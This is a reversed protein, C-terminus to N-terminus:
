KYEPSKEAPMHQKKSIEQLMDTSALWWLSPDQNQELIGM